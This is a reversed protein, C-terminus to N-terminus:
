KQMAKQKKEQFMDGMNSLEQQLEDLMSFNPYASLEDDVEAQLQKAKQKQEYPIKQALREKAERFCPVMKRNAEEEYDDDFRTIAFNAMNHGNTFQGNKELILVKRFLAKAYDPDEMLALNNFKDSKELNNLNFYCASINNFLM